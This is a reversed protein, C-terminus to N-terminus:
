NTADRRHRPLLAGPARRRAESGQVRQSTCTRGGRPNQGEQGFRKELSPGPEPLPAWLRTSRSFLQRQSPPEPEATVGLGGRFVEPPRVDVLGRAGQAVAEGLRPLATDQLGPPRAGRPLLGRPFETCAGVELTRGAAERMPRFHPPRVSHVRAAPKAEQALGSTADM